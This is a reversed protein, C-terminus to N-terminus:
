YKYDHWSYNVSNCFLLIRYFRPLGKGTSFKERYKEGSHTVECEYVAGNNWDTNQVKLVSIAAFKDGVSEAPWNTFGTIEQTNKRWTVSLEKPRFDEITCVLYQVDSRSASILKIKPPLPASSSPTLIWINM